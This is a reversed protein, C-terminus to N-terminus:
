RRDPRHIIIKFNNITARRRSWLIGGMLKKKSFLSPHYFTLYLTILQGCDRVSSIKVNKAVAVALISAALIFYKM